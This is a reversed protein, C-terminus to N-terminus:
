KSGELQGRLEEIRGDYVAKEADLESQHDEKTMHKESDYVTMDAAYVM